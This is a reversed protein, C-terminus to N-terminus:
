GAQGSAGDNARAREGCPQKSASQANREGTSGRRRGRRGEGRARAAKWGRVWASNQGAWTRKAGARRSAKDVSKEASGAGARAQVGAQGAAEQRTHISDESFVSLMKWHVVTGRPQFLTTIALGKGTRVAVLGPPLLLLSNHKSAATRRACMYSIFLCRTFFACLYQYASVKHVKSTDTEAIPTLSAPSM